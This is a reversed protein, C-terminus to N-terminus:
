KGFSSPPCPPLRQQLQWVSRNLDVQIASQRAQERAVSELLDQFSEQRLELRNFGERLDAYDREAAYRSRASRAVYLYLGTGLGSVGSVLSLFQVASSLDVM